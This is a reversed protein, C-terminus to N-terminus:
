SSTGLIAIDYTVDAVAAEIKLDTSGAAVSWGGGPNALLLQGGSMVKVKDGTAAFPEHWEDAVAGGILLYGGTSSTNLVLIAKVAALSLSITNGFVSQALGDLELTTSNGAALTQQEVHWITDAQNAGTGDALDNLCRLRNSNVITTQGVTDRWTWGLEAHIASILTKSM